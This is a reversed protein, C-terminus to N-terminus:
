CPIINDAQISNAACYPCYKPNNRTSIGIVQFKTKCCQVFINGGDDM